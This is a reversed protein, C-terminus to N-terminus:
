VDSTGCVYEINRIDLGKHVYEKDQICTDGRRYIRCANKCKGV